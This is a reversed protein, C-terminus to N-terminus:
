ARVVLWTVTENDDYPECAAIKVQGFIAQAARELDYGSPWNDLAPVPMQIAGVVPEGDEHLTSCETPMVERAQTPTLKTINM